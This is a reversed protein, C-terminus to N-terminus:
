KNFYEDVQKQIDANLEEMTGDTHIDEMDNRVDNPFIKKM